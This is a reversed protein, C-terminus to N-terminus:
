PIRSVLDEFYKARERYLRTECDARLKGELTGGRYLGAEAECASRVFREWDDHSNVFADAEDRDALRQRLAAFAEDAQQKADYADTQACLVLRQSATAANEGCDEAWSAQALIVLIGASLWSPRNHLM